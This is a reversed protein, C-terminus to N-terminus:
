IHSINVTSSGSLKNIFEKSGDGWIINTKIESSYDNNLVYETNDKEIEIQIVINILNRKM